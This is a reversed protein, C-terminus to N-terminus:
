ARHTRILRYSSVSREMPRVFVVWFGIQGDDFGAITSDGTM